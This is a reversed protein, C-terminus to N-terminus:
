NLSPHGPFYALYLVLSSSTYLRNSCIEFIKAQLLCHISLFLSCVRLFQFRPLWTKSFFHLHVLHLIVSFGMWMNVLIGLTRAGNYIALLESKFTYKRPGNSTQSPSLKHFISSFIAITWLKGHTKQVNFPLYTFLYLKICTKQSTQKSIRFNQWFNAFLTYWNSGQVTYM